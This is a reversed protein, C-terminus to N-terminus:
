MWCHQTRSPRHFAPVASGEMALLCWGYKNFRISEGTNNFMAAMAHDAPWTQVAGWQLGVSVGYQYTTVDCSGATFAANSVTLQTAHSGVM